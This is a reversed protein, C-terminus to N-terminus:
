ICAFCLLIGNKQSRYKKKRKHLDPDIRTQWTTTAFARKFVGPLANELTTCWFSREPIGLLEDLQFNTPNVLSKVEQTTSYASEGENRVKQSM